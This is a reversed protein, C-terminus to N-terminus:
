MDELPDVEVDEWALHDSDHSSRARALTREEIDEPEEVAIVLPAVM